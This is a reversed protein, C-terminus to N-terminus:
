VERNWSTHKGTIGIIFRSVPTLQIDLNTLNWKMQRAIRWMYWRPAEYFLTADALYTGNLKICIFENCWYTWAFPFIQRILIQIRWRSKYDSVIVAKIPCVYLLLDTRFTWILLAALAITIGNRSAFANENCQYTNHSPRFFIRFQFLLLKILLLM